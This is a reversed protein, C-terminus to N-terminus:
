KGLTTDDSSAVFSKWSALIKLFPLLALLEFCANQGADLHLNVFCYQSRCLSREVARARSDRRILPKIFFILPSETQNLISLM